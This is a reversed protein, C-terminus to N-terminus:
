AKNSRTARMKLSRRKRFTVLREKMFRADRVKQHNKRSVLTKRFLKSGFAQFAGNADNIARFSFPGAM